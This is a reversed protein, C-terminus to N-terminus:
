FPFLDNNSLLLVTAVVMAVFMMVMLVVLIEIMRETQHLMKPDVPQENIDLREIYDAIAKRGIKYKLYRSTGRERDKM